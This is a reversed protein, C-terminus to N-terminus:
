VERSFVTLIAEKYIDKVINYYLENQSAFHDLMVGSNIELVEFRGDYEVIDISAFNLGLKLATDTAISYIRKDLDVLEVLEGKAGGSLNHRWDLLYADGAPLIVNLNGVDCRLRAGEILQSLTSVGDGVVYPRIKRYVLKIQNNLVVVRFENKIEYYPSVAIAKTGKLRDLIIPVDSESEAKFVSRGCTGNNDKCVIVGYKRLYNYISDFNGSRGSVLHHVVHQVGLLELVCSTAVKDCCISSVSDSNLGLQRAIIYKISGDYRLRFVFNDSLSEIAINCEKCIDNLISAFSM